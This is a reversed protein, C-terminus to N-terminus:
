GSPPATADVTVKSVPGPGDDDQLTVTVTYSGASSYTHDLTFDRGNLALPQIGQGDGYDVFASLRDSSPDTVRGDLSLKLSGATAQRPLSVTAAYEAVTVNGTSASSGGDGTADVRLAFQGEDVYVHAVHFADNSLTMTQVPTGDGFSVQVRAPTGNSSVRGDFNM